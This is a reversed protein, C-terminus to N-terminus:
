NKEILFAVQSISQGMQVKYKQNLKRSININGAPTIVVRIEM